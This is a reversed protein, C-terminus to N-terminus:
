DNPSGLEGMQLQGAENFWPQYEGHEAIMDDTEYFGSYEAVQLEHCACIIDSMDGLTPHEFFEIQQGKDNMMVGYSTPNKSMLKNYNIM